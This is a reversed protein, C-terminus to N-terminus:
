SRIKVWSKGYAFNEHEFGDGAKQNKGNKQQGGYCSMGALSFQGLHAACETFHLFLELVLLCPDFLQFFQSGGGRRGVTLRM